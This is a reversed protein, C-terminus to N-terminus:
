PVSQIQRDSGAVKGHSTHKLNRLKRRRPEHLRERREALTGSSIQMVFVTDIPLRANQAILRNTTVSAGRGAARNTSSQVCDIMM